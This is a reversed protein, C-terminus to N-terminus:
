VKGQAIKLGDLVGARYELKMAALNARNQVSLLDEIPLMDMWRGVGKPNSLLRRAVVFCRLDAVAIGIEHEVIHARTESQAEAEHAIEDATPEPAADLVNANLPGDAIKWGEPTLTRGTVGRGQKEGMRAKEAEFQEARQRKFDKVWATLEIATVEFKDLTYQMTHIAVATGPIKLENFATRITMIM